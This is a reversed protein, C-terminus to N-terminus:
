VEITEGGGLVSIRITNKALRNGRINNQQTNTADSPTAISNSRGRSGIVSRAYSKRDENKNAYDRPNERVSSDRRSRYSELYLEHNNNDIYSNDFQSYYGNDQNFDNGFRSGSALRSEKM